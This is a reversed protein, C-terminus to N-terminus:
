DFKTEKDNKDVLYWETVPNDVYLMVSSEFVNDEKDTIKIDVPVPKIVDTIVASTREYEVHNKDFEVRNIYINDGTLVEITRVDITYNEPVYNINLTTSGEHVYMSNVEVSEIVIADIINISWSITESPSDIYIPTCAVSITRGVASKDTPATITVGSANVVYSEAGTVVWNYRKVDNGTYSFDLIAKRGLAVETPGTLTPTGHRLTYKIYLAGDPDDISNYKSILREKQETTLEMNLVIKGTCSSSPNVLANYLRNSLIVSQDQDSEKTLDIKINTLNIVSLKESNYLAKRILENNDTSISIINSYNVGEFYSMEINPCNNLTIGSLTDPLQVVRLKYSSPLIVSTIKTGRLDVEELRTENRLDVSGTLTSVGYLILKKLSPCALTMSTPQFNFDTVERSDASFELLHKGSLPFAEGLSVGGFEGYNTYYDNGYIFINTNGDANLTPSDYKTNSPVRTNGAPLSQGVGVKPYLWQWTTLNFNYEPNILAGDPNSPNKRMISRFSLSGSSQGKVNFPSSSAWSQIYPVRRKWWQKEAQLQDGLSQSIATTNNKYEGSAQKVSAEEYLIRVTENYAVAPFYEQVWFYYDQLCKDVSGFKSTIADLIRTMMNKLETEFCQEMLVYFTNEDSNWFKKGEENTDHEEVYYPKNKRGVNDTLKITDLDDQAFRIIKDIPDYYEYTNKCWNDSAALLKVMAMSYLTDDINYIYKIGEKFENKRAQIFAENLSDIDSYDSPNVGTQEVINLECISWVDNDDKQAGANVWTKTIYDYRRVIYSSTNWYQYKIDKSSDAVNDPRLYPSHLYTFNFANKFPNILGDAPYEKGDDKEVTKGADFDWSGQKNYEYYEEDPNYSVENDLWPVFRMTLPMGNDSGEILIYKKGDPYNEDKNIDIGFTPKDAKGSGFTVLGAFVPQSSEDDQFFYLFPLEHVAVRCKKYKDIKTIGSGGVVEKWMDNYLATSGIKHSQMSSAWNLKSVLKKCKPDDDTLIYYGNHEVGNGDTWISDLVVSNGEEDKVKVKGMDYQHNWKWYTKSSSGQGKIRLNTIIGSHAPDGIINIKLTGPSKDYESQYYEPHKGVWILTNYKASAKDFSITGDSALINNMERFDIKAEATSLSSMYDQRIDPASLSKKYVRIGYIDLDCKCTESGFIMKVAGNKFIDNNSYLMERNMIGNIFIRIYNLGSNSLNPIINIALHTREEDQFMVDQDRKVQNESTMFYAETTNMQFGLMTDANYSKISALENNDDFVNSVKFDLEITTGVTNSISDLPDYDISISRGAPIRLVGIGDNDLVWGDDQFSFDNWESAIINDNVSNRIIGPTSESNSRVKPNLVFDAGTTPNMNETNDITINFTKTMDSTSVTVTASITTLQSDIELTNYFEYTKEVDCNSYTYKLYNIAGKDISVVVDSKKNYITFDFFKTNVFNTVKSVQNNLILVSETSVGNIYYFQTINHESELEAGDVSLWAEVTITGTNYTDGISINYPTEIYITEGLPYDYVKAQGGDPTIKIHLTKAVQGQIFYAFSASTLPKSVDLANKITLSTNVVSNFTVNPSVSGNVNDTVRMRIQNDGDLLYKTIDITQYGPTNVSFPQIIMTAVTTWAGGEYSRQITLTGENDTDIPAGGVPTSTSTYRIDVKVGEGLNVLKNTNSSTTLSVEYTDANPLQTVFIPEISDPNELWIDYEAKNKFGYLLYFGAVKQQSRAVYGVKSQLEDKIFKQVSSGAYPLGSTVEKGWDASYSEIDGDWVKKKAM